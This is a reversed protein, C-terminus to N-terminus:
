SRERDAFAAMTAAVEEPTGVAMFAMVKGAKTPKSPTALLTALEAAAPSQRAKRGNGAKTPKPKRTHMYFTGTSLGVAKCAQTSGVGHEAMYAQVKKIKAATSRRQKERHSLAM